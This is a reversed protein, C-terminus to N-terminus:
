KIGADRKPQIRFLIWFALNLRTHFPLLYYRRLENKYEKRIAKRIKKATKVNM